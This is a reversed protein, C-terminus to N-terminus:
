WHARLSCEAHLSEDYAQMMPRLGSDPVSFDTGVKPMGNAIIQENVGGRFRMAFVICDSERKMMKQLSLIMVCLTIVSLFMLGFMWIWTVMM